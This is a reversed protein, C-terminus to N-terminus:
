DFVEFENQNNHVIKKGKCNPSIAWSFTVEEITLYETKRNKDKFNQSHLISILNVENM